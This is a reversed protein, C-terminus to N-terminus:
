FGGMKKILTKQVYKALNPNTYKALYPDTYGQIILRKALNESLGRSLLYYIEEQNIQGIAAGHGAEVDYENIILKPDVQIWSKEGLLVGKSHQYCKSKEMTKDITGYIDFKIRSSDNAVIANLLNSSSRKAQHHVNQTIQIDDIQHGVVLAEANYISDMGILSVAESVILQGETFYGSNVTLNSQEQLIIQKSLQSKEKLKGYYFDNLELTSEPKLILKVACNSHSNLAYFLNVKTQSHKKAEITLSHYKKTGSLVITIPEDSNKRKSLVLKLENDTVSAHVGLIDNNWNKSDFLLTHENNILLKPLNM